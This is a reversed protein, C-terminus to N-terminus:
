QRLVFRTPIISLFRACYGTLLYNNNQQETEQRIEIKTQHSKPAKLRSFYHTNLYRWRFSKAGRIIQVWHQLWTSYGKRKSYGLRFAPSRLWQIYLDDTANLSDARPILSRFHAEADDFTSDKKFVSSSFLMTDSSANEQADSWESAYNSLAPSVRKETDLRPASCQALALMGMVCLARKLAGTQHVKKLDIRSTVM